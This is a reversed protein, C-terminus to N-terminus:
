TGMLTVKGLTEEQSLNWNGDSVGWCVRRRGELHRKLSSHKGM